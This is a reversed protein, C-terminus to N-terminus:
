MYQDLVQNHRYFRKKTMPSPINLFGCLTQLAIYGRGIERMAIVSRINIDFALRGSGPSKTTDENNTNSKKVEESTSFTTCWDCKACSLELFHALGRKGEINHFVCNKESCSPCSGIADVINNLIRTDLLM